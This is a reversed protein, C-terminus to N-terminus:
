TLELNRVGTQYVLAIRVNKRRCTRAFTGSRAGPLEAFSDAVPQASESALARYLEGEFGHIKGKGALPVRAQDAHPLQVAQLTGISSAAQEHFPEGPRGLHPKGKNSDDSEEDTVETGPAVRPSM